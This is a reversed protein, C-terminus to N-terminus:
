RWTTAPRTAACAPMGMSSATPGAISVLLDLLTAEAGALDGLERLILAEHFLLEDDPAHKRGGPM